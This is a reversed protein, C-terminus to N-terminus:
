PNETSRIATGAHVYKRLKSFTTDLNQEVRRLNDELKEQQKRAFGQFNMEERERTPISEYLSYWSSTRPISCREGFNLPENKDNKNRNLDNTSARESDFNDDPNYGLETLSVSRRPQLDYVTLDDEDNSCMDFASSNRFSPSVVNRRREDAKKKIETKKRHYESVISSFSPSYQEPEARDVIISIKRGERETGGEDSDPIEDAEESFQRERRPSVLSKNGPAYRPIKSPRLKNVEGHDKDVPALRSTLREGVKEQCAVAINEENAIHHYDSLNMRKEQTFLYPKDAGASVISDDTVGPTASSYKLRQLQLIKKKRARLNAEREIPSETTM